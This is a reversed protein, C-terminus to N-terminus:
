NLCVSYPITYGGSAIVGEWCAGDVAFGDFSMFVSGYSDAYDFHLTEPSPQWWSGGISPELPVSVSGDQHFVSDHYSISGPSVVCEYFSTLGTGTCHENTIDQDPSPSFAISPYAAAYAAQGSNNAPNTDVVNPTSAAASVIVPATSHALALDVTVTKSKNHKISGLGCVVTTGSVACGPSVAGVTGMVSVYPSTHTLPLQVVLNVNNAQTTGLNTVTVSWTGSTYVEVGAPGTVTTRLDVGALAPAAVALLALFSM